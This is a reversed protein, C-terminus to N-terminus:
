DKIWEDDDVEKKIAFLNRQVKFNHYKKYQEYLRFFKNLSM